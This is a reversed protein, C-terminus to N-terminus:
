NALIKGVTGKWGSHVAAIVKRKPDYILIPVCDAALVAICINPIDTVLADTCDLGSIEVQNSLIKVNTSHTQGPIILDKQSIDLAETIRRRNSNVNEVEDGVGYSLNLSSLDGASKGGKRGSVFHKVDAHGSLQTFQWLPLDDKIIQR